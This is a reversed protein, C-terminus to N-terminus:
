ARKRTSAPYRSSSSESGAATATSPDAVAVAGAGGEVVSALGVRRGEGAWSTRAWVVMKAALVPASASRSSRSRRVPSDDWSMRPLRM